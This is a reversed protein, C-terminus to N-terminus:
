VMKKLEDKPIFIKVRRGSRNAMMSNRKDEADEGWVYKMFNVLVDSDNWLAWYKDGKKEPRDMM